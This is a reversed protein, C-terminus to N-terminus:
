CIVLPPDIEGMESMHVEGDGGEEDGGDANADGTYGSLEPGMVGGDTSATALLANM